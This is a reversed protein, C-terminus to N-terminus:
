GEGRPNAYLTRLTDSTWGDRQIQSPHLLCSALYVRNDITHM